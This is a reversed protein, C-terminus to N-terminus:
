KGVCFNSFVKDIVAQSAKQGTLELLYSIADDICVGVADLTVGMSLADKAEKISALANVCCQRQRENALMAANPDFDHTGLVTNIRDKLEQLGEGTSASIETPEGLAIRIKEKDILCPKDTKNLIPIVPRGKCLEILEEDEGSLKEASDFVALVVACRKIKELSREVGLKEVTDDTDRIGATDSLRLISGDVNATEEVVDRTTGKVDTVISRDYGLLLNMLTSKGANPKGIIAADVGTTVAMGSDFKDLLRQLTGESKRLTNIIEAEDIEEIEDDPYDVWASIHACIETLFETIKGLEKSLSGELVNLAATVGQEARSNILTMIGEAGSLDIKGNLFARKSFEGPEAPVAGCALVVRLAKQVVFMGGHCTIEVVDEGTFSHPSRFVLCVAEDVPQEGDYIKGFLATYGKLSSLTKGSMSKFAKDCIEIAKEGSVRITAIGGTGAPTSVAAITKESKYPM